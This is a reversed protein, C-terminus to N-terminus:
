AIHDPMADFDEIRRTLAIRTAENVDVIFSVVHNLRLLFFALEILSSGAIEAQETRTAGGITLFEHKRKIPVRAQTLASIPRFL